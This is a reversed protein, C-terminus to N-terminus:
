ANQYNEGTDQKRYASAASIVCIGFRFRADRNLAGTYRFERVGKGDRDVKALVARDHREIGFYARRRHLARDGATEACRTGDIVEELKLKLIGSFFGLAGYFDNCL